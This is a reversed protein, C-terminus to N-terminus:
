QQLSLSKLSKQIMGENGELAITSTPSPSGLVTKSTVVCGFAGTVDSNRCRIYGSCSGQQTQQSGPPAPIAGHPKLAMLWRTLLQTESHVHLALLPLSCKPVCLEGRPTHLEWHPDYPTSNLGRLIGCFEAQGTPAAPTQATGQVLGLAHLVHLPVQTSGCGGWGRGPGWPAATWVPDRKMCWILRWPLDLPFAPEQGHFAKLFIIFFFKGFGPQEEM